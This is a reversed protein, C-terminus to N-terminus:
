GDGAAEGKRCALLRVLMPRRTPLERVDAFRAQWALATLEEASRPRGSGMALLYFAFYAGVREAGPTDAMPEAVLLVGGAPLAANAARLLALAVADDHDHLVRVLTAVDCGSPLPANVADCAALTIRDEFGAAAVNARAAAIVGPLDAVTAQLHPAHRVASIAFTGNGGGIDLLRAHRQLPYAALVDEAVFHQSAAMLRTYEASAAAAPAADHVSRQAYPWYAGLRTPAATGRLLPLPDALDAYLLAHHRVMATVGPNGRLAAGLRGLGYRGAGRRELLRLAVAANLLRQAADPTMRWEGALEAASARSQALREFVDLAVCTHLVQSYVFGACLDFLDSAHRAAAGRLLPTASAWRHFRPSALLRDRWATLRARLDM